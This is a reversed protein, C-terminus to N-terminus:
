KETTGGYKNKQKAKRPPQRRPPPPPINSRPPKNSRPKGSQPPLPKNTGPKGSQPPPLRGGNRVFEALSKPARARSNSNNPVRARSNSNNPVRARARSNSNNQVKSISQTKKKSSQTKNKSSQTQITSSQTQKGLKNLKRSKGKILFENTRQLDYQIQIDLLNKTIRKWIDSNENDVIHRETKDVRDKIKYKFEKKILGRRKTHIIDDLSLIHINPSEKLHKKLGLNFKKVILKREDFSLLDFIYALKEEINSVGRTENKLAMYMDRRSVVPSHNLKIIFIKGRQFVESILQIYSAYNNIAEAIFKDRFLKYVDRFQEPTMNKKGKVIESLPTKTLLDYYFVYQFHANGLWLGISKLNENDILHRFLDKKVDTNTHTKILYSSCLSQNQKVTYFMKTTKINKNNDNDDLIKNLDDREKPLYKLNMGTYSLTIIDTHPDNVIRAVYSDGILLSSVNNCDRVFTTRNFPTMKNQNITQNKQRTIRESLIKPPKSKSVYNIVENKSTEIQQQKQSQQSQQESQRQSQQAKLFTTTLSQQPKLIKKRPKFEKKKLQKQLTNIQLQQHLQRLKQRFQQNLSNNESEIQQKPEQQKSSPM